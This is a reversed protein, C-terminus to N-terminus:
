KITLPRSDDNRRSALHEEMKWYAAVGVSAQGSEFALYKIGRDPPIRMIVERGEKLFRLPEFRSISIGARGALPGIMENLQRLEIKKLVQPFEKLVKGLGGASRVTWWRTAHRMSAPTTNLGAKATVETLNELGELAAKKGVSKIQSRTLESAVVGEPQITALSLVDAAVFAGDVLAWTWEGSTPAYGKRMINALHTLDYLPLFEVASLNTKQISAVRELGDDHIMKITAQGSEGSLSMVNMALSEFTTRSTQQRLKAVVEPNVDTQAIPLIIASGHQRLIERFQSDSAYKELVIAAPIGHEALAEVAKNRLIRDSYDTYVVEAADAGAAKLAKEGPNGFELSLKLANPHNAVRTILGTASLHRLHSALSEPSHSELYEQADIAGVHLAILADDLLNEAGLNEIVDGFLGMLLFGEPGRRRFAELSWRPHKILNQISKNLSGSGERLSVVQLAVFADKLDTESGSLVEVLEMLADPNSMMVPLLEPTKEVVLRQSPTLRELEAIWIARDGDDARKLALYDRWTLLIKAAAHEDVLECLRRFERPHNEYLYVAELELTDLLKLGRLGDTKELNVATQAFKGVVRKVLDNDAPNSNYRYLLDAKANNYSDISERVEPLTAPPRPAKALKLMVSIGLLMFTLALFRKKAQSM